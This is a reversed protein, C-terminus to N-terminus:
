AMANIERQQVSNSKVLNGYKSRPEFDTTSSISKPEIHDVVMNQLSILEEVNKDILGNRSSV